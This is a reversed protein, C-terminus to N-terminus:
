NEGKKYKCKAHLLIHTYTPICEYKCEDGDVFGQNCVCRNGEPMVTIDDIFFFVNKECNCDTDPHTDTTDEIAKNINNTM